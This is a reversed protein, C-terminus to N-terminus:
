YERYCNRGVSAKVAVEHAALVFNGTQISVPQKVHQAAQVHLNVFCAALDLIDHSCIIRRCSHCETSWCWGICM